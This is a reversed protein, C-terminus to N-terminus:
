CISTKFCPSPEDQNKLPKDDRKILKANLIQYM